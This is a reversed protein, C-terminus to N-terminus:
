VKTMGRRGRHVVVGACIGLVLFVGVGRVWPNQTAVFVLKLYETTIMCFGAPRQWWNDASFEDVPASVYCLRSADDALVRRAVQRARRTHYFSTVVAVEIGPRQQLYSGLAQLDEATTTTDGKLSVIQHDALGRYELVRRIIEATPPSVGDLEAPSLANEPFLAVDAFGAKVLAAAVFPRIQQDGPLIFVADVRRPPTGVDLWRAAHPLIQHPLLWVAAIAGAVLVLVILLIRRRSM